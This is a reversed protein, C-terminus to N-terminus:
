VKPEDGSKGPVTAPKVEEVLKQGILPKAQEDPLSYTADKEKWYTDGFANGHKKLTKVQM